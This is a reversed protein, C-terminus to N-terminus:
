HCHEITAYQMSRGIKTVKFNELPMKLKILDDNTKRFSEQLNEFARAIPRIAIHMKHFNNERVYCPTEKSNVKAIM